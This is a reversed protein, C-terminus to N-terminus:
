RGLIKPRTYSGKAKEQLSEAGGFGLGGESDGYVIERGFILM